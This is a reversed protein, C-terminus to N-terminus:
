LSHAHPLRAARLDHLSLVLKVGRQRRTSAIVYATWVLSVASNVLM